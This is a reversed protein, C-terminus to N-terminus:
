FKFGATLSINNRTNEVDVVPSAPGNADQLQYPSLGYEQSLHRYALDFYVNNIRYGLGASVTQTHSDFAKYPGGARGYGARILVDPALMYEAGVRFNVANTYAEKISANMNYDTDSSESSFRMSAYDVYEVDASILGGGFIVAVGGNLRYPTRLNYDFYSTEEPYELGDDTGDGLFNTVGFYDTYENTLTYWTPTTATVGIQVQSVPRYILGLKANFGNGRTDSWYENDFAYESELLPNYISYDPNTPDVFRSSPNQSYIYGANEMSGDEMFLYNVRHNVRAFGLSAGIYFRNGYNAGFSVDTESQSGEERNFVTQKNDLTTMPLYYGQADKEIMGSEEGFDGYTFDNSTMFDAISSESNIGTYGLTGYFNNTKYYGVGINFNVWGSSLNSGIARRTPLNFVASFQSIGIRDVTNKSNTGFYRAKNLNSTYDLTIGLDSQSFFGLGAPNGAISSLDGGLATQANGLGMFRATAGTEPQSYRLIDDMYQAQVGTYSGALLLSLCAM